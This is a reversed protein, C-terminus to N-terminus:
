TSILKMITRSYCGGGGVGLSTVTVMVMHIQQCPTLLQGEGVGVGGFGSTVTHFPTLFLGGGLGQSTVMNVHHSYCGEECECLPAM